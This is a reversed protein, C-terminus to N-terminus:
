LCFFFFFYGLYMARLRVDVTEGEDKESYDAASVSDFLRRLPDLRNYRNNGCCLEIDAGVEVGVGGGGCQSDINVLFFACSSRHCVGERSSVHPLCRFVSGLIKLSIKSPYTSVVAEETPPSSEEAPTEEVVQEEVPAEPLRVRLLSECLRSERIWLDPYQACVM